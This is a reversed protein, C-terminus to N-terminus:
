TSVGDLSQAIAALVAEAKSRTEKAEEKPISDYVVGAGARVHAIGNQVFASRIVIATDMEGSHDIYGVAGGYTARKASEQLRLIESAKVKPAGVLTGMNLSAQYAHLADLDDRLEGRVYSTLHMVHSFRDVNMLKEVYRTKPKCVRAVDNRALDVLMMHEAVEKHDLRLEAERRSDLDVSIEGDEDFGRRRTGAIPRVEVTKPTGSVKIFTEPSAGFLSFDNDCIYYMYPSPNLAKLKEYARMPKPCPTSFTRSPVIQFVDGAVIHKKMELVVNAFEADTTDISVNISPHDSDHHPLALDRMAPTSRCAHELASTDVEINSGPGGFVHAFIVTEKQLHDVVV